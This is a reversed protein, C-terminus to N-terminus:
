IILKFIFPSISRASLRVIEDVPPHKKIEIVDGFDLHPVIVEETNVLLFTIEKNNELMLFTSNNPGTYIGVVLYQEEDIIDFTKPTGRTITWGTLVGLATGVILTGIFLGAQQNESLGM